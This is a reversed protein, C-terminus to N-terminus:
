LFRKAIRLRGGEWNLTVSLHSQSGWAKLETAGAACCSSGKWSSCSGWNRLCRLWDPTVGGLDNLWMQKCSAIVQKMAMCVGGATVGTRSSWPEWKESVLMLGEVGQCLFWSFSRRESPCNEWCSGRKLSCSSYCRIRSWLFTWFSCSMTSSFTTRSAGLHSYFPLDLSPNSYFNLTFIVYCFVIM